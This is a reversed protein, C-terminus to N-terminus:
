FRHKEHCTNWKKVEQNVTLFLGFRDEHRAHDRRSGAAWIGPLPESQAEEPTAIGDLNDGGSKQLEIYEDAIRTDKMAIRGGNDDNSLATNEMIEDNTSTELDLHEGPM